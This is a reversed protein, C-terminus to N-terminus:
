IFPWFIILLRPGQGQKLINKKWDVKLAETQGNKCSSSIRHLSQSSKPMVVVLCWPTAAWNWFFLYGTIRAHHHTSGCWPWALVIVKLFFYFASMTWLNSSSKRAAGGRHPWLYQTPIDGTSFSSSFKTTIMCPYASSRTKCEPLITMNRSRLHHPTM